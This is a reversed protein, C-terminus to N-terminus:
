MRYTLASGFKRPKGVMTKSMPRGMRDLTHSSTNRLVCKESDPRTSVHIVRRLINLRQRRAGDSERGMTDVTYHKAFHRAQKVLRRRQESSQWGKEALSRPM